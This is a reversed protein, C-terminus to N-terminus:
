FTQSATRVASMATSVAQRRPVPTPVVMARLMDVTAQQTRMEPLSRTARLTRDRISISRYRQTLFAVIPPAFKIAFSVELIPDRKDSHRSFLRDRRM